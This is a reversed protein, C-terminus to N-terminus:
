RIQGFYNSWTNAAIERYNIPKFLQAAKTKKKFIRKTFRKTLVQIETLIKTKKANDGAIKKFFCNKKNKTIM